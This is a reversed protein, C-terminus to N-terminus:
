VRGSLDFLKEGLETLLVPDVPLYCLSLIDRSLNKHFGCSSCVVGRSCKHLAYTWGQISKPQHNLRQFGGLAWYLQNQQDEQPTQIMEEPEKIGGEDRGCSKSLEM